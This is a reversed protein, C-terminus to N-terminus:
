LMTWHAASRTPPGGSEDGVQKGIIIIIMIIIILLLLLIQMNNNFLESNLITTQDLDGSIDGSGSKSTVTVLESIISTPIPSLWISAQSWGPLGRFRFLVSRSNESGSGKYLLDPQKAMDNAWTRQLPPRPSHYPLCGVKSIRM